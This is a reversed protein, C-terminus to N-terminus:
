IATLVGAHPPYQVVGQGCIKVFDDDRVGGDGGGAEHNSGVDRVANLGVEGLYGGSIALSVGSVGALEGRGGDIIRAWRGRGIM